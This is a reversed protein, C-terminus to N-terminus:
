SFGELSGELELLIKKHSVGPAFGGLWGNSGVVRHCPIIIPIPNRNAAGGIARVLHRNGLREAIEKYTRVSGFGIRQMEQWVKLQFDTGSLELPLDFKQLRGDFYATLEDIAELMVVPRANEARGYRLDQSGFSVSRVHECGCTITIAGVITAIEAQFEQQNPEPITM